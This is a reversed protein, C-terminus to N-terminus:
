ISCIKINSDKEHLNQDVLDGELRGNRLMMLLVLSPSIICINCSECKQRILMHLYHLVLYMYHITFTNFDSRM